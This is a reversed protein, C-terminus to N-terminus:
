TIKSFRTHELRLYSEEMIIVSVLKIRVRYGRIAYQSIYFTDYPCVKWNLNRSIFMYIESRNQTFNTDSNTSCRHDVAGYIIKLM